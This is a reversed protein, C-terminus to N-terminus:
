EFNAYSNQFLRIMIQSSFLLYVLLLRGGGQRDNSADAVAVVVVGAIVGDIKWGFGFRFISDVLCCPMARDSQKTDCGIFVLFYISRSLSTSVFIGVSYTRTAIFCLDCARM